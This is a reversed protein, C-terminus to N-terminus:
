AEVRAAGDLVMAPRADKSWKPWEPGGPVAPRGDRIFAIWAGQTKRTVEAVEAPDHGSLMPADSWDAFNGFVFPIEICHCAGYRANRTPRWHFRYLWVDGGAAAHAEALRRAPKEFVAWTMMASLLEWPKGAAAKRAPPLDAAPAAYGGAEAAPAVVDFSTAAILADDQALWAHGEDLTTGIMLPVGKAAGGMLAKAPNQQCSPAPSVNQWAITRDGTAAIDLQVKRQAAVLADVPLARLREFDGQPLGAAAYLAANIAAAREESLTFMSASMPIARKVLARSAPDALLALVSGGGASQGCITINAPDGGFAAINDRVWRLAAMQDLLGRNAAAGGNREAEPAYLYGLAGLRYNVGVVVIDGAKALNGGTYFVQHAGGSQYAGGHLWIMVPRKSQDARPTWVTLTLCDESQAFRRLGMVADLRSPGQPPSAGVTICDRVGSWKPAPQPAAFRLQGLPPAAYPIAHFTAVGSGAVGRVKGSATEALPSSNDNESVM